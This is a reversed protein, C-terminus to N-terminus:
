NWECHRAIYYRM